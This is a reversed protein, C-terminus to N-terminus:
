RNWLLIHIHDVLMTAFQRICYTNRLLLEALSRLTSNALDIDVRVRTQGESGGNTTYEVLFRTLEVWTFVTTRSTILHLLHVLVLDSVHQSRVVLESLEVLIMILYKLSLGAFIM